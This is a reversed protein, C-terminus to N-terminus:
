KLKRKNLDQPIIAIFIRNFRALFDWIWRNSDVQREGCDVIEARKLLKIVLQQLWSIQVIRNFLLGIYDCYVHVLIEVVLSDDSIELKKEFQTFYEEKITYILLKMRSKIDGKLFQWLARDSYVRILQPEFGVKIESGVLKFIKNM